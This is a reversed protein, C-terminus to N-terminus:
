FNLKAKDGLVASAKADYARAAEEEDVFYGLSKKKGAHYFKVQYKKAHKNWSVGRYSSSQSTTGRLEGVKPFNLRARAGHHERAAADYAKAASVADDYTGVTKTSGDYIIKAAWRGKKTRRVGRFACRDGKEGDLPFNVKADPGRMMRVGDDYARAAEVEDAYYGFSKRKKKGNVQYSTSAQWKKAWKNWSVGRYSSSTMNAAPAEGPLPFNLGASARGYLRAAADYAQGALVETEFTGLQIVKGKVTIKAKFNPGSKRVGKCASHKREVAVGGPDSRERRKSYPKSHSSSSSSVVKFIARAPDSRHRRKLPIGSEQFNFKKSSSSSSSPRGM